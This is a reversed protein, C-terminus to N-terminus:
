EDSTTDPEVLRKDAGYAKQLIEFSEKKREHFDPDDWGDWTYRLPVVEQASESKSSDASPYIRLGETEVPEIADAEYLDNWVLHQSPDTFGLLMWPIRIELVDGEAYWDALNNFDASSPDTVGRRMEGVEIEEFPITEKTKPLFLKRSLALKWPLFDGSSSDQRATPLTIMGLQYAYLWTHQDYANNVLIRSEGEGQLRLLFQIGGGPFELGPAPEAEPSGDRLTGFGVNVEDEPFQWQGNQKKMLLYVYAEDHTTAVSFKEYEEQEVGSADESFVGSIRDVLGKERDEWDSTKGDLFIQDEASGAETAIIGFNEENTLRNRWMNRRERPLELDWTNWTYKFWEDTWEFLLAGDYGETRIAETMEADIRGQEEETHYGQDRGLPGRHAMGRSSPVGFEGIFLPIGEHHARLENLYAAYPDIEGDAARYTKYEPEYRLFDPYYPYVHYQTFYGAKWSSRTTIHMPDVSVLDEKALKGGPQNPHKLPDTTVWNTFSIPHQWGYEMEKEALTDMMWALWSEFPSAQSNAKFYKGTYPEMGANAKDTKKVAYPYWETGLMWGLMYESVDTRYRGSAHGPRPKLDADGHVVDVIDSIEKMFKETIQPTYADRGKDDEAILEEEPSWVGQILWLPEEQKSNFEKLAAYFEPDLITYVRVTDVNMAKMQGFWRLYDEKAPAFEGPSHGPLTSGLNVGEWFQAKWGTGDYVALNADKVTSVQKIGNSEAVPQQENGLLFFAMVIATLTAVVALVLIARLIRTQRGPRQRKTYNQYM